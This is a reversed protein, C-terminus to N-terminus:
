ASRLSSLFCTLRANFLAELLCFSLNLSAFAGFIELPGQRGRAVLATATSRPINM